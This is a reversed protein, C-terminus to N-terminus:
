KQSTTPDFWPKWYTCGVCLQVNLLTQDFYLQKVLCWAMFVYRPTSTSRWANKDEASTPSHDAERKLWKIRRFLAGTRMPYSAPNVGLTPRFATSFLFIGLGRRRDLLQFSILLVDRYSCFRTGSHFRFLADLGRSPNLTCQKHNHFRVDHLHLCCLGGFCQYGVAVSRPTVVRFVVVQIKV